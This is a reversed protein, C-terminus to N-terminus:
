GEVAAQHRLDNRVPRGRRGSQGGRLRGRVPGQDQTIEDNGDVTLGDALGLVQDRGDLFLSLTDHLDRERGPVLEPLLM